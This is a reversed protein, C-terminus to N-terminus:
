EEFTIKKCFDNKSPRATGQYIAAKESGIDLGAQKIYIQKNM